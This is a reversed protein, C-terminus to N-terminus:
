QEPHDLCLVCGPTAVWSKDGLDPCCSGAVRALLLYSRGRIITPAHWYNSPDLAKAARSARDRVEPVDVAYAVLMM